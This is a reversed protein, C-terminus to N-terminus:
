LSEETSRMSRSGRPSWLCEFQVYLRYLTYNAYIVRKRQSLLWVCGLEDFCSSTIIPLADSYTRWVFRKSSELVQQFEPFERGCTVRLVVASYIACENTGVYYRQLDASYLHRRTEDPRFDHLLRAYLKKIKNGSTKCLRLNNKAIPTHAHHINSM